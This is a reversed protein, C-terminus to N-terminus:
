SGEPNEPKPRYPQVYTNLWDTWAGVREQRSLSYTADDKGPAMIGTESHFRAALLEFSRSHEGAATLMLSEAVWDPPTASMGDIKTTKGTDPDFYAAPRLTAAREEESLSAEFAAVDRQADAEAVYERAKPEVAHLIMLRAIPDDYATVVAEAMDTRQQVLIEAFGLAKDSIALSRDLLAEKERVRDLAEDREMVLEGFRDIDALDTRELEAKSAALEVRLTMSEDRAASLETVATVLKTSEDRLLGAARTLGAKLNLADEKALARTWFEPDGARAKAKLDAELASITALLAGITHNSGPPFLGKKQFHEATVLEGASLPKPDSM